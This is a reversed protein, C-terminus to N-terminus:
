EGAFVKVQFVDGYARLGVGIGRRRKPDACASCGARAAGSADGVTKHGAGTGVQFAGYRQGIGVLLSRLGGALRRYGAQHAVGPDRRGAGFGLPHVARLDDVGVLIVPAVAEVLEATVGFFRLDVNVVEARITEDKALRLLHNVLEVAPVRSGARIVEQEPQAVGM